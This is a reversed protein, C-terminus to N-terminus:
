WAGKWRWLGDEPLFKVRSGEM